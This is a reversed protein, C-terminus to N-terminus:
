RISILQHTNARAPNSASTMARTVTLVWAMRAANAFGTLLRRESHAVTALSLRRESYVTIVLSRRCESCVEAPLILLLHDIPLQRNLALRRKRMFSIGAIAILKKM